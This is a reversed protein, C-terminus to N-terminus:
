NMDTFIAWIGWSIQAIWLLHTVYIGRGFKPKRGGVLMVVFMLAYTMLVLIVEEKQAVGGWRTSLVMVLGLFFNASAAWWLWM